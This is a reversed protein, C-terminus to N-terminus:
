RASWAVALGAKRDSNCRMKAKYMGCEVRLSSVMTRLMRLYTRIRAKSVVKGATVKDVEQKTTKITTTVIYSKMRANEWQRDDIM